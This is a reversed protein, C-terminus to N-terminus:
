DFLSEVVLTFGDIVKSTVLGSQLKLHIKYSNGELLYQELVKNEPDVIWYEQIGHAAYDEMKIGRDIKETHASLIEVVFDAPPFIHQDKTFLKAKENKWFVIDPEYDNRTLRMMMKEYGLLGTSYQDLYPILKQLLSYSARAHKLKVPSNYMIGEGNIFEGKQDDRINNWFDHRRTQEEFWFLQIEELVQGLYSTEKLQNILSQSSM